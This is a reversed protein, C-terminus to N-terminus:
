QHEAQKHIHWQGGGRVERDRDTDKDDDKEIQGSSRGTKPEERSVSQEEEQCRSLTRTVCAVWGTCSM